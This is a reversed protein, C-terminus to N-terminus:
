AGNVSLEGIGRPMYKLSLCGDIELSRLNILKNIDKPLVQLCDCRSLKLTQLNHLRTICDPLVKFGNYSLDLHRLHKLKGISKPVKGIGCLQLDLARLLKLNLAIADCTSEGDGVSTCFSLLRVVIEACTSEGDSTFFWFMQVVIEDCTSENGMCFVVPGNVEAALITRMKKAQILSPQIKQVLDLDFKYLSVHCTKSNIPEAIGNRRDFESPTISEALEHMLDHMKCKTVNGNDDIKVEEFFSRCLLEKLFEYGVDELCDNPDSIKIFGQAMWHQVLIEVDIEYDKPFLAFYVFCQKLSSPLHDYSLKLTPIIDDETQPIKSLEKELFSSWETESNKLHLSGGITIIAFPIGGCRDVIHMGIKLVSSSISLEQGQKLTIKKFLAWSKEKDKVKLGYAPM